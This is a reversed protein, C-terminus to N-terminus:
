PVEDGPRKVVPTARPPNPGNKQLWRAVETQGVAEALEVATCPTSTGPNRLNAWDRSSNHSSLLQVCEVHGNHIAMYLPSSGNDAVQDLKAGHEILVAATDAHGRLCAHWLPSGGRNNDKNVAAGATLLASVIDTYGEKSALILPTEGCGVQQNVDHGKAILAAVLEAHGDECAEILPVECSKLPPRWHDRGDLNPPRKHVNGKSDYIHPDFLTAM